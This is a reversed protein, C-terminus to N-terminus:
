ESEISVYGDEEEATRESENDREYAQERNLTPNDLDQEMDEMTEEELTRVTAKTLKIQLYAKDDFMYVNDFFLYPYVHGKVGMLAEWDIPTKDPDIFKAWVDVTQQNRVTGHLKAFLTRPHLVPKGDSDMMVKRGQKKAKARLPDFKGFDIKGISKKYHKDVLAKIKTIVKDYTVLFAKCDDTTGERSNEYFLPLTPM